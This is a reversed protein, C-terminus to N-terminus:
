GDRESEPIGASSWEAKSIGAQRRILSVLTERIKRAM